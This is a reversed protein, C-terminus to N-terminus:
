SKPELPGMAAMLDHNQGFDVNIGTRPPWVEVTLKYTLAPDCDGAPVASWYRITGGQRRRDLHPARTVECDVSTGDGFVLKVGEPAPANDEQQGNM